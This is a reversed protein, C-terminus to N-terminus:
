NLKFAARGIDNEFKSKLSGANTAIEVSRKPKRKFFTNLLVQVKIIIM